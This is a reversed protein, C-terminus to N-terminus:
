LTISRLSHLSKMKLRVMWDRRIYKAFAKYENSKCGMIKSGGIGKRLLKVIGFYRYITMYRDREKQSKKHFEFRVYDIPRAGYRVLRWFMDLEWGLKCGGYSESVIAAQEPFESFALKIRRLASM